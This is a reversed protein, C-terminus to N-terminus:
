KNSLNSDIFQSNRSFNTDRINPLSLNNDPKRSNRQNTGDRIKGRTGSFDDDAYAQIEKNM